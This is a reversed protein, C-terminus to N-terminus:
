NRLINEPTNNLNYCTQNVLVKGIKGGRDVSYAAGATSVGIRNVEKLSLDYGVQAKKGKSQELKLLGQEVIQDANLM